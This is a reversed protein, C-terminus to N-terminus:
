CRWHGPCCARGTQRGHRHQAERGETFDEAQIEVLGQGRNEEEADGLACGEGVLIHIVEDGVIALEFGEEQAALELFHDAEVVHHHLLDFGEFAVIEGTGEVGPAQVGADQGHEFPEGSQALHEGVSAFVLLLHGGLDVMIGALQVEGHVVQRGGDVPLIGNRGLGAAGDFIEGPLGVM